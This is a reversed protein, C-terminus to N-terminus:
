HPQPGRRRLTVSPNACAGPRPPIALLRRLRWQYSARPSAARRRRRLRVVGCGHPGNSGSGPLPLGRRDRRHRDPPGEALARDYHMLRTNNSLYTAAAEVAGAPKEALKHTKIMARLSKALEGGSHGNLLVLLRCEVWEQAQTTGDAHFAYAARWLYELVHVIDLVITIKVGIAGAAQKIRAVQDKNGDVLVVLSSVARSRM